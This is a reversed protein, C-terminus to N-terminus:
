KSRRSRQSLTADGCNKGCPTKANRGPGPRRGTRSSGTGGTPTRSAKGARLLNTLLPASEASRTASEGVVEIWCMATLRPLVQHYLREPLRTIRALTCPDHPTGNDRILTGRPECRSAVCVLAMWAGYHCAGVNGRVTSVLETYGDGDLKNPIPVWRLQQLKRSAAVEYHKDWGVIRYLPPSAM